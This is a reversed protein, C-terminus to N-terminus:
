KMEAMLKNLNAIGTRGIQMLEEIDIESIDEASFRRGMLELLMTFNMGTIVQMRDNLVFMSRNSPTGGLLDVMAIVGSGDDIEAVAERIREDFLEPNDEPALNLAKINPIDEGFFLKSSELMGEAMAGHSMLLIGIM